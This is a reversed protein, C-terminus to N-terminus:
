RLLELRSADLRLFIFLLLTFAWLSSGGYSIFPLPIGIVPLLGITMGINVSIHLFLISALTYGFVRSFISRQLEALYIIRLLLFLFLGIVTFAGLFGWEEGITCFIFDTSQEPVFDGKNQTGGLFGKGTFGGSGIAIKSQNVNYGVGQPDQEINLLINVRHRQHKTLMHNFFYEVSFTYGIGGVLILYILMLKRIRYRIALITYVLGAFLLGGLLIMYGSLHLSAIRSVLWLVGAGALFIGVGVSTEKIRKRVLVYVLFAACILLILIFLKDIILSAFFLIILMFGIMLIAGPMGERYLPLFLAVFVLTSGADPQLLILLAPLIFIGSAILITKFSEVKLNFSSLYKAFALATFVKAIESPQINFWGLSFWSRAGNIERAFFLVAILLIIGIGYLLYAFFTYFNVEIVLAAIALILALFIYIMQRAYRTSFDFIEHHQDSYVAAYINVWGLTILVLYLAVTGWDLNFWVNGRRPM